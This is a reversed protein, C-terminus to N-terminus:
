VPVAYVQEEQPIDEKTKFDNEELQKKLSDLSSSSGFSSSSFMSSMFLPWMASSIDFTSGEKDYVNKTLSNLYIELSIRRQWIINKESQTLTFYEESNIFEILEHLKAKAEYQEKKLEEVTKM